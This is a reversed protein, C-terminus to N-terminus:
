VGLRTQIKNSNLTVYRMMRVEAKGVVAARHPSSSATTTATAIAATATVATVAVATSSETPALAHAAAAQDAM